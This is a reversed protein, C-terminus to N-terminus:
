IVISRKKGREAKNRRGIKSKATAQEGCAAGVGKRGGVAIGGVCGRGVVVGMGAASGAVKVGIRVKGLMAEVASSVQVLARVKMLSTVMGSPVVKTGPADMSLCHSTSFAPM